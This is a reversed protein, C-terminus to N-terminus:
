HETQLRKVHLSNIARLRPHRPGRLASVVDSYIVFVEEPSSGIILDNAAAMIFVREPRMRIIPGIRAAIDKITDGAIGRNAISTDPFLDPWQVFATLSDGLM